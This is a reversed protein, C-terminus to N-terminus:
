WTSLASRKWTDTAVCVYMYNSDWSMEGKACTATANAPTKETRVRISDSNIDLKETPDTTGIGVSGSDSIVMRIYDNPDFTNGVTLGTGGSFAFLGHELDLSSFATARATWDEMGDPAFEAGASLIAQDSLLSTLYGGGDTLEGFHISSVETDGTVVDLSNSPAVTGIGANGTTTINQSGFHPNIKTGTIAADSAIKEDTIANDKINRGSIVDKWDSDTKFKNIISQSTGKKIATVQNTSFYDKWNYSAYANNSVFLSIGLTTILSILVKKNTQM